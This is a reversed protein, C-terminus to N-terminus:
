ENSASPRAARFRLVGESPRAVGDELRPRFRLSHLRENLYGPNVTEDNEASIVNFEDVVSIHSEYTGSVWRSVKNLSDLRFHLWTDSHEVQALQGVAPAVIPFPVVPMSEFWEQFSLRTSIERYGALEVGELPSQSAAALALDVSHHFTAIPLIQPSDFLRNLVEPEKGADLLATYAQRYAEETREQNFLLHWDAIYLDVMAVAEAPANDSERLLVQMDEFLHLGARYNRAQAVRRPQVWNSGPAVARLAYAAEGGREIAASQLYFLKALSYHLDIRRPDYRGWVFESVNLAAYLLESARRYHRDQQAEADGAVSLLHFESLHTLREVIQTEDSVRKDLLLWNLYDLATNVANWEGLRVLNELMAFYLPIQEPAFLGLNVRQIQIARELLTGAEGPLDLAASADALSVLSEVLAPDHRGLAMEQELVQQQLAEHLDILDDLFVEQSLAMSSFLLGGVGSILLINRLSFTEATFEISM